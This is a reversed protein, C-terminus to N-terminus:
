RIGGPPHWHLSPLYRGSEEQQDQCSSRKVETIQNRPRKEAGNEQRDHKRNNEVREVDANLRAKSPAVSGSQERGNQNHKHEKNWCDSQPEDDVSLRPSQIVQQALPARCLATPVWVHHMRHFM